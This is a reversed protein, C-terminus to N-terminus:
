QLLAPAAHRICTGRRCHRPRHRACGPRPAQLPRPPRRRRGSGCVDISANHHARILGPVDRGPPRVYGTVVVPAGGKAAASAAKLGSNAGARRATKAAASAALAASFASVAASSVAASPRDTRTSSAAAGASSAANTDASNAAVAIPTSPTAPPAAEEAAAAAAAAEAHRRAAMEAFLGLYEPPPGGPWASMPQVSPEQPQGTLNPAAPHDASAGAIPSGTVPEAPRDPRRRRPAQGSAM